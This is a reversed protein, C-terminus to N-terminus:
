RLLSTRNLMAKLLAEDQASIEKGLTDAHEKLLPFVGKQSLEYLLGILEKEPLNKRHKLWARLTGFGASLQYDIIYDLRKDPQDSRCAKKLLPMIIAKIKDELLYQHHHKILLEIFAENTKFIGMLAQLFAGTQLVTPLDTLQQIFDKQPSLLADLAKDQLDYINEYYAYFTSRHYGALQCLERISIKPLEKDQYLKWFATIFDTKANSQNM